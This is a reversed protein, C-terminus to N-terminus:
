KILWQTLYQGGYVLLLSYAAIGLPKCLIIIMSFKKFSMKTLSTMLVLADDPAIPAAILLSFIVSWKKNDLKGVYKDYTKESVLTQIFPKGYKRGLSFLILSGIVNGIYNYLFGAIPGFILVGAANSIGGPIIPVVVQLIQILVFIIPGLIIRNGVLGELAHQDRFVGLHIFYITRAATAISGV